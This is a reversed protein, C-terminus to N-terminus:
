RIIIGPDTAVLPIRLEPDKLTLFARGAVWVADEPVKDLEATLKLNSESGAVPTLNAPHVATPVGKWALLEEDSHATITL